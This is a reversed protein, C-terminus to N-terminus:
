PAPGKWEFSLYLSMSILFSFIDWYLIHLKWIESDPQIQYNWWRVLILMKAALSLHQLSLSYVPLTSKNLHQICVQTQTHTYFTYLVFVFSGLAAISLRSKICVETLLLLMFKLLIWKMKRVTGVIWQANLKTGWSHAQSLKISSANM